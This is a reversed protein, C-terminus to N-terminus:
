GFSLCVTVTGNRSCPDKKWSGLGEGYLILYLKGATGCGIVQSNQIAQHVLEASGLGRGEEQKSGSDDAQAHNLEAPSLLVRLIRKSARMEWKAGWFRGGLLYLVM